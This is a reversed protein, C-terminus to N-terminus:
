SYRSVQATPGTLTGDSNLRDGVLYTTPTIQSLHNESFISIVGETETVVDAAIVPVEGHAANLIGYVTTQKPESKYHLITPWGFPQTIAVPQHVVPDHVDGLALPPFGVTQTIKPLPPWGVSQTITDAEGDTLEADEDRKNLSKCACSFKQSGTACISIVEGHNECGDVPSDCHMKGHNDCSCWSDCDAKSVPLVFDTNPGHPCVQGADWSKDDGECVLYWAKKNDTDRAPLEISALQTTVTVISVSTPRLAASFSQSESPSDISTPRLPASFAHVQRQNLDNRPSSDPINLAIASSIACALGALGPLRM